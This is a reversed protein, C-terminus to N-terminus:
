AEGIQFLFEHSFNLLMFQYSVIFYIAPLIILRLDRTFNVM